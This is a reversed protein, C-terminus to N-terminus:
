LQIKTLQIANTSSVDISTYISTNRSIDTDCNGNATTNTSFLSSPAGLYADLSININAHIIFDVLILLLILTFFLMFMLSLM